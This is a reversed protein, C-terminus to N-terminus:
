NTGELFFSLQLLLWWGDIWPFSSRSKSKLDEVKILMLFALSSLGQLLTFGRGEEM